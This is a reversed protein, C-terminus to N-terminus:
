IGNRHGGSIRWGGASAAWPPFRRCIAARPRQQHPGRAVPSCAVLAMDDRPAAALHESSVGVKPLM